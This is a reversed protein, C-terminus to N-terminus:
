RGSGALKERAQVLFKLAQPHQPNRRLVEELDRVVEAWDGRKWALVSLNYVPDAATPFLAATREYQAQAEPIRGTRELVVGLNSQPQMNTPELQIWRRYIAEASDFRGAVLERYGWQGFEYSLNTRLWEVDGGIQLAREYAALAERWRGASELSRAYAYPFFAALAKMRFTAPEPPYLSRLAYFPWLSVSVPTTQMVIGNMATAVGPLVNPDMSVYYLPKEQMVMKEVAWRRANKADKPISRFDDGYPNPFVLGGRDHLEVDPRKNLVNQLMALSYFADDGGDMFLAARAPLSRLMSRGYDLVLFGNRNQSALLWGANLELLAFVGLAVAANPFRRVFPIFGGVLFLIPLILFRGIIGESQSTLPLNGLWIFFPGSFVFGAFMMVSFRDRRWVGWALALLGLVFLPWSVEKAARRMFFTVHREGNVFSRDPKEGLALTLTGYDKRLITHTLRAVTTPRGWNLPPAANSRLPLVLYISFGVIFFVIAGAVVARRWIWARELWGTVAFLPAVFLLVQHNGCGLGMLFASLWWLSFHEEDTKLLAGGILAALLTNLSFVETVLSNEWFSASFALLLAVVIGPGVGVGAGWAIWLVVLLTLASTFASFLNCRYPVSGFPVVSIFCRSAIMYLPFSPSHPLSLTAAATIFEGSDGATVSPAANRAYFAFAAAFVLLAGLSKARTVAVGPTQPGV